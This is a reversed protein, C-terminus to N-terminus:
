CAQAVYQWRSESQKCTKPSFIKLSYFFVLCLVFYLSFLFVWLSPKHKGSICFKGSARCFVPFGGVGDERVRAQFRFLKARVLETWKWNLSIRHLYASVLGGYDEGKQLNIGRKYILGRKSPYAVFSWWHSLYAYPRCYM